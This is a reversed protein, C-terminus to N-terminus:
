WDRLLYKLHFTKHLCSNQHKTHTQAESHLESKVASCFIPVRTMVVTQYVGAILIRKEQTSWTTVSVHIYRHVLVGKSHIGLRQDRLQTKENKKRLPIRSFMQREIPKLSPTLLRHICDHRKVFTEFAKLDRGTDTLLTYFFTLGLSIQTSFLFKTVLASINMLAMSKREGPWQTSHCCTSHM